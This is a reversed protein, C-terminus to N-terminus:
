CNSKKRTTQSTFTIKESLHLIQKKNATCIIEPILRPNDKKCIIEQSLNKTKSLDKMLLIHPLIKTTSCYPKTNRMYHGKPWFLKPSKSPCNPFILFSILPKKEVCLVPDGDTLELLGSGDTRCM